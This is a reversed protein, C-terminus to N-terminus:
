KMIQNVVSFTAYTHLALMSLALTLALTNTSTLILFLAILTDAAWYSLLTAAKTETKSFFSKVSGLTRGFTKATRLSFSKNEYVNNYIQPFYKNIFDVMVPDEAITNIDLSHTPTFFM